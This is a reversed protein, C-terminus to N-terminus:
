IQDCRQVCRQTHQIARETSRQACAKVFGQYLPHSKGLRSKFEPHAQTAVFFLHKQLPLEVFEMLQAGDQRTHVGSFILGQQALIDVYLPNIEYRHRHRESVIKVDDHPEIQGYLEYVRTHPKLVASYLGLRMSGGYGHLTLAEKQFPLITVVPHPANPDIETTHAGRLHCVNRAFEIALLQLGYCLGLLPVNNMRAYEIVKIKGEVGTSGFGGPIIIGDFNSLNQLDKENNEYAQADIWEPRMGVACEAGAHMLAHYISVYSDPMAYEGSCVYKGVIAISITRETKVMRNVLEQWWNWEPIKKTRLGFHRLVRKGFGQRELELPMQYISSVDPAAIINEPVIHAFEEIKKRRVHDLSYKSRCMIFDPMIGQEGLLRIAQQTPKTKMEDIHDPVPLYTVLVYAVRNAGMERELLKLAFLFPVNEYEGVTGGVEIVAIDYGASSQKIRAVIEDIIHPIFQVTKGLYEGARERDIVAKYIQGTTINNKRPIACDIFREYTGFDQDVEGGDETVWVEGHETPRLTGADCNLYPDIKILTTRFGYETIIRGISGAIVGKGVGSIVGGAVVVFRTNM